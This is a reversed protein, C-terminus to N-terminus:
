PQLRLLTPAGPFTADWQVENCPTSENGTLNTSTMTFYYIGQPLALSRLDFTVVNTSVGISNTYTGPSSGWYILYGTVRSDPSTTWGLTNYKRSPGIALLPIATMAMLLVPKFKM